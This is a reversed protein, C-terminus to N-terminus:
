AIWGGLLGLVILALYFMGAVVLAEFAWNGLLKILMKTM